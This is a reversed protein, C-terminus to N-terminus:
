KIFKIFINIIRGLLPLAIVILGLFLGKNEDLLWNSLLTLNPVFGESILISLNEFLRDM